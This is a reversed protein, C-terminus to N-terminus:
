TYLKYNTIQKCIGGSLEFDSECKLCIRNNGYIEYNAIDCEFQNNSNLKYNKDCHYCKSGAYSTDCIHCAFDNCPCTGDKLIFNEKCKTCTGYDSNLCEECSYEFCDKNKIFNLIYLIISIKLNNREKIKM